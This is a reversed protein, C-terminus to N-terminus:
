LMRHFEQDLIDNIAAIESRTLIELAQSEIGISPPRRSEMVIRALEQPIKEDCSIRFLGLNGLFRTWLNQSSSAQKLRSVATEAFEKVVYWRWLHTLVLQEVYLDDSDLLRAMASVYESCPNPAVFVVVTQLNPWNTLWDGLQKRGEPSLQGVHRQHDLLARVDKKSPVKSIVREILDQETM